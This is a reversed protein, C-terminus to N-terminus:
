RAALWTDCAAFEAEIQETLQPKLAGAVKEGILPVKVKVELDITYTCAGAGDAVVSTTGRTEAPVGKIDVEYRGALRQDSEREWHDVSTVTNTPTILKKAVSPVELEVVRRITIDFATDTASSSLVELDRHGMGTFKAVHSDPDHLMEWVADLPHDFRHTLTM